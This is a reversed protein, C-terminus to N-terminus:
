YLLKEGLKGKNTFFRLKQFMYQILYNILGHVLLPSGERLRQELEGGVLGEADDEQEEPSRHSVDGRELGFQFLDPSPSPFM